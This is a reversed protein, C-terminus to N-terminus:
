ITPLSPLRLYVNEQSERFCSVIHCKMQVRFASLTDSHCCVHPQTKYRTDICYFARREEGSHFSFHLPKTKVAVCHISIAGTMCQSFSGKVQM